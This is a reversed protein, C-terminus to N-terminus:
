SPALTALRTRDVTLRVADGPALHSDWAAVAEVRGVGVADVVLRLQESDARAALVV